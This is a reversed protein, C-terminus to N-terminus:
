IDALIRGLEDVARALAPALLRAEALSLMYADEVHIAPDDIAVWAGEELDWTQELTVAGSGEEDSLPFARWATAQMDLETVGVEEAWPVVPAPPLSTTITM